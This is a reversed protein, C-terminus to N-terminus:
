PKKIMNRFNDRAQGAVREHTNEPAIDETVPTNMGCAAMVERISAKSPQWGTTQEIISVLQDATLRGDFLMTILFPIRKDLQYLASSGVLAARYFEGRSRLPVSEIIELAKADQEDDEPNLYTTFKKRKDAV